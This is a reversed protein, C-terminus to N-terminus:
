QEDAADQAQAAEYARMADAAQEPTVDHDHGDRLTHSKQEAVWAAWEPTGPTPTEDSMPELAVM